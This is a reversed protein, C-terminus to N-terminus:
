LRQEWARLLRETGTWADAMASTTLRRLRQAAGSRRLALVEAARAAAEAQLEAERASWCAQLELFRDPPAALAWESLRQFRWWASVMDADDGGAALAAPLEGDLYVPLFTSACPSGLAVWADPLGDPERCLRAIMAARTASGLNDAHFCLTYYDATESDRNRGLLPGGPGHDRLVSMLAAETIGGAANTLLDRSRCVRGDSCYAPRVECSRYTAAFSFRDGPVLWGRDRAHAELDPSARDPVGISVHNSISAVGRGIRKAAWRRGSTELVWAENPDAILFSSFYALGSDRNGIGGQGHQELLATMVKLAEGATDARELGLRVLDMGLLGELPVPDRTYVAENGIAVGAENVGHEVGWLWVPQSGLFRRTQRAQEVALYQCRVTAGPPHSAAPFIRLPQCELLPRDSNKAFLTVGDATADPLAVMTDCGFPSVQARMAAVNYHVAM